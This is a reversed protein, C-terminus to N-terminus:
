RSAGGTRSCRSRALRVTAGAYSLGVTTIVGDGDVKVEYKGKLAENVRKAFEDNSVALLSGPYGVHGMRTVTAAWASAATAGVLLVGLLLALLRMRRVTKSINMASEERRFFEDKM